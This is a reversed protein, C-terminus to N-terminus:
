RKEERWGTPTMGAYKRFFASFRPPDPIGLAQGIRTIDLDTERLLRKAEAMRLGILYAYPTLGTEERFRMEFSRRSCGLRRAWEEVPPPEALNPLLLEDLRSRLDAVRSTKRSSERPILPGPSVPLQRPPEGALQGALLRGTARGLEGHPQPLSSIGMDALLGDLARDGVGVFGAAEPVALGLARALGIGQRAWYDSACLIGPEQRTRLLDRLADLSRLWPLGEARTPSFYYVERYGMESFHRRAKAFLDDLNLYVSSVRDGLPGGGRHVCPLAGPLSRLWQESIFDGVVGDVAQREILRRLQLEFQEHLPVVQWGETDAVEMFGRFIEMEDQIRGTFGYAVRLGHQSRRGTSM